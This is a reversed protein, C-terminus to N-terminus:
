HIRYTAFLDDRPHPLSAQDEQLVRYVAVWRDLSRKGNPLTIEDPGAQFVKLTYREWFGDLARKGRPSFRLELGRRIIEAHNVVIHTVGESQLVTRLARGNESKNAWLELLTTQMPSSVRRDRQLQFGRSDGFVLVKSGPPANANLFAAAPYIPAPYHFRDAHALFEPAPKAGSFIAWRTRPLAGGHISAASAVCAGLLLLSFARRIKPERGEIAAAALFSALPLAAVFYRPLHSILAIPLWCFFAFWAVPRARKPLGGLVPVALLPLLTFGLSDPLKGRYLMMRLPALFFEKLWGLVGLDRFAFTAGSGLYRWGPMSDAAPQWLEHLFPFIPNGYFIANSIVWPSLLAAALITPLLVVAAGSRKERSRTVAWLGAFATPLGWALYKAAMACGLLAGALVLRGRERKDPADLLPLFALLALLQFLAWAPEVGAVQSLVSVVPITAFLAGAALGCRIGTRRGLAALGGLIWPIFSFNLLRAATGEPDVALAWGFLMGPLSPVGAFANEPVPGIRGRLLHLSPLGLHYELADYFTEPALVYPLLLTLHVVVAIAIAKGEPPLERWRHLSVAPWDRRLAQLPSLSGAALLILLLNRHLLGALGLLLFLLGWACAGAGFSLTEKAFPEETRLGSTLLRGTGWFVATLWLAELAHRCHGSFAKLMPGAGSPFPGVPPTQLTNGLYKPLETHIAAGVLLLVAAGFIAPPPIRRNM